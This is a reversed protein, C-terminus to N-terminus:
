QDNTPFSETKAQNSLGDKIWGVNQGDFDKQAGGTIIDLNDEKLNKLEELLKKNAKKSAPLSFWKKM